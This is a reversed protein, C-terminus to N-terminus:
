VPFSGHSQAYVDASFKALSRHFAVHKDACQFTMDIGYCELSFMWFNNSSNYVLIKTTKKKEM